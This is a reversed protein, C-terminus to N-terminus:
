LDGYTSDNRDSNGYILSGTQYADGYITTGSANWRM